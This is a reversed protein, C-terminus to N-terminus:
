REVKFGSCAALEYAYGEDDIAVLVRTARAGGTLGDPMSAYYGEVDEGMPYHRTVKYVCAFQAQNTSNIKM